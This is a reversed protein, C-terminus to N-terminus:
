RLPNNHKRFKLSKGRIYFIYLRFPPLQTTWGQDLFVFRRKDQGFFVRFIGNETAKDDPGIESREPGVVASIFVDFVISHASLFLLPGLGLNTLVVHIGLLESKRLSNPNGAGM